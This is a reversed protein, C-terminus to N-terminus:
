AVVPAVLLAAALGALVKEGAWGSVAAVSLSVLVVVVIVVVVLVIVEVACEVVAVTLWCM